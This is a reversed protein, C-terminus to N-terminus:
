LLGAFGTQGAEIDYLYKTMDVTEAEIEVGERTLMDLQLIGKQGLKLSAVYGTKAVVRWWPLSSWESEKMGSLTWGIVRANVGCLRALQGYYVVRGEPILNVLEIIQQKLTM